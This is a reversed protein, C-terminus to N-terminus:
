TANEVQLSRRITADLSRLRIGLAAAAPEPDCCVDTQMVDIVEPSLGGRAFRKRLMLFGKVASTPISVIRVRAGRLRAGREVIERMPLSERGVLELVRGRARAADTAAALAGEALDRADVPQERSRGGGVLPVLGGATERALARDGESACGLVLPARLVTHALGSHLLLQEAEGKSRFYPNPSSPDASVAGVLVFKAVTEARAAAVAARVTDVNASGYSRGPTEILIGPLHIVADADRFAERLTDPADFDVRAVRGRDEPIPPLESAARESRVCAVLEVGRRELAQVVM